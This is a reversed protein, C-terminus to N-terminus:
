TSTSERAMIRSEVIVGRLYHFDWGAELRKIGSIGSNWWSGLYRIGAVAAMKWLHRPAGFYRVASRSHKGLRRDGRGLRFARGYLWRWSLQDERIIHQVKARPAYVVKEGLRRLRRLLETESGMPYDAGRPGMHEAFRCGKMVSSRVACNPGFPLTDIPGEAADPQFRAYAPGAIRHTRLAQPAVDPFQPVIAGAIIACNPWRDAVRRLELLWHNEPIVDDDTFVLLSGQAVDLARNLARNKGAVPEELCVLPLTPRAAALVTATEDSSGNDVVIVELTTDDLEQQALCRLTQALLSARNRTALCVSIDVNSM